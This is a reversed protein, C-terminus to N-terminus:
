VEPDLILHNLLDKSYILNTEHDTLATLMEDMEEQTFAEGEETMYQSLDDPDLFGKKETDLVEFAELLVDESIPPFKHELLVTTMAPLFRDLHIYGTEDEEVEAIFNHLDAQTPFCGLSYIITGIERVDATQNSQYDFAEFAARIKKQVEATKINVAM